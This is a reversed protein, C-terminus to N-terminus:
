QFQKSSSDMNLIIQRSFICNNDIWASKSVGYFRNPVLIQIRQLQDSSISEDTKFVSDNIDRDIFYKCSGIM